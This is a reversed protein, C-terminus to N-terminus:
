GELVWAILAELNEDSIQSEPVPPMPLKGWVGSGGARVSATLTELAQAEGAYRERIESWAPGMRKDTAHHCAVCKAETALDAPDALPSAAAAAVLVGIALRATTPHNM